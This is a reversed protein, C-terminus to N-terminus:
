IGQLPHLNISSSVRKHIQHQLVPQQVAVAALHLGQVVSVARLNAAQHPRQAQLEQYSLYVCFIHMSLNSCYMSLIPEYFCYTVSFPIISSQLPVSGFKKPWSEYKNDISM